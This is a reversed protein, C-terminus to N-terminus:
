IQLPCCAMNVTVPANTHISLLQDDRDALGYFADITKVSKLLNQTAANAKAPMGMTIVFFHVM